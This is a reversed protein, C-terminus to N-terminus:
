AKTPTAKEKTMKAYAIQKELAKVPDADELEPPLQVYGTRAPVPIEIPQGKTLYKMGRIKDQIRM